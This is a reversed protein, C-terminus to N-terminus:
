QCLELRLWQARTSADMEVYFDWALDAGSHCQGKQEGSLIDVLRYSRNSRLWLQDALDQPIYYSQAVNQEWLNHLVFVVSGDGSWKVM